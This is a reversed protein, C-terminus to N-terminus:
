VKESLTIGLKGYTTVLIWTRVEVEMDSRQMPRRWDERWEM